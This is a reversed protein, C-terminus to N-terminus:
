SFYEDDPGELTEYCDFCIDRDINPLWNCEECTCVVNRCKSQDCVFLRTSNKFCTSCEVCEQCILQPERLAECQLPYLKKKSCNRCFMYNCSYCFKSRTCKTSCIVFDCNECAGPNCSEPEFFTQTCGNSVCNWSLYRMIRSVLEPVVCAADELTYELQLFQDWKIPYRSQAM